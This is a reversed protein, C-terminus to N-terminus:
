RVSFRFQDGQHGGFFITDGPVLEAEGVSENSHANLFTGNTSRLDKLMPKGDVIGIWAHHSSVRADGLVIDCSPKRGVTVGEVTLAYTKGKHSGSLGVLHAGELSIPAGAERERLVVPASPLPARIHVRTAEGDGDPGPPAFRAEPAVCPAPAPAQRVAAPQPLGRQLQQLRSWLVFVAALLVVVLFVLFFILLM